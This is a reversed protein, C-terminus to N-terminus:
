QGAAATDLSGAGRPRRLALFAPAAAFLILASIVWVTPIGQGRAVLGLSVLGLAGGLTAFMSRVSIVTARREPGIRDNISALVIPESVGFAAEQMLIGFLVPAFSGALAALLLMVGRWVVSAVLLTERRFRTLLSPMVYSATISVVNMFAWVWGMLAVGEGTFEKLRTQWVMHTPVITFMLVGSLVCLMVLERSTSVIAWGERITMLFRSGPEGAVAPRPSERMLLLALVTTVAFGAAGIGWCLRFSIEALYAAAIGGVVMVTRSLMQARAFFRDTPTLNGEARMGDVAWADLAGTALTTGIADLVEAAVCDAFTEARAYMFFAVMRVVCSLVFSAKRGFVDAIAGTPVEFLFISILYIACVLNVQFLDLGLSLLFLPYVPVMFWGWQTYLGFVLYYTRETRTM